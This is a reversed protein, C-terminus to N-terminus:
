DAAEDKGNENCHKAGEEGSDDWIKQTAFTERKLKQPTDQSTATDVNLILLTVPHEAHGPHM